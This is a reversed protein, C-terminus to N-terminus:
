PQGVPRFSSPLAPLHCVPRSCLRLAMFRIIPLEISYRQGWGITCSSRLWRALKKGLVTGGPEQTVVVPIALETLRRCLAKAQFTKGSGEGGEFTIFLAM